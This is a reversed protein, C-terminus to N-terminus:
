AYFLGTEDMNFINRATFGSQQILTKIRQRAKEVTNLHASAANGHRKMEKLGIREKLRTLWGESLVLREDPPIKALDAFSRWKQRIIEGTLILGDECAMEIWLELMETVQPHLTTSVRKALRAVGGDAEYAARWKAEDKVWSSIIPQKLHLNPYIPDFHRATLTQNKGNAHYWDLVEIRQQNTAIEKRGTTKKKKSGGKMCGLQGSPESDPSNETPTRDKVVITDSVSGNKGANM